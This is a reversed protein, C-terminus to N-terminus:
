PTPLTGNYGANKLAPNGGSMQWINTFDFGLGQYFSQTLDTTLKTGGDLGGANDVPTAIGTVAAAYNTANVGTGNAATGVVRQLYPTASSSGITANVVVCNSAYGNNQFTSAIGANALGTATIGGLTAGIVVCNSTAGKGTGNIGGAAGTNVVGGVNLTSGSVLCNRVNAAVGGIGGMSFCNTINGTFLCEDIRMNDNNNAGFIGGVGNTGGAAVGTIVVSSACNKITVASEGRGLIGGIRSKAATISINGKATCYSIESANTSSKGVIGGVMGSSSTISLNTACQTVKGATLEGVVGGTIDSTNTSVLTGAVTVNQVTGSNTGAVLGFAVATTMNVGTFQINKITGTNTVVFAGKTAFAGSLGSLSFGAGDVTGGFTTIATWPNTVTIDNMFKVSANPYNAMTSNLQDQDKVMYPDGTTGSGSEYMSKSSIAITRATTKVNAGAGTQALSMAVTINGPTFTGGSKDATINGTTTNYTIAAGTPNATTNVYVDKPTVGLPVSASNTGMTINIVTPFSSGVALIRTDKASGAATSLAITNSGTVAVGSADCNTFAVESNAAIGAVVNNATVSGTLTLNKVVAAAGAYGFFSQNDLTPQNIAYKITQGNGDFSGTFPAASTGIPSWNQSSADITAIVKYAKNLGYQVRNLDNLSAIEYPHAISGDGASFASVPIKVTVAPRAGFSAVAIVTDSLFQATPTLTLTGKGTYPDAVVNTTLGQITNSNSVLIAAPTPDVTFSIQKIASLSTIATNDITFHIVGNPDPDQAVAVSVTTNYIKSNYMIKIPLYTVKLEVPTGSVPVKVAGSDKKLTVTTAPIYMGNVTDASITATGGGCNEYLIVAQSTSALKTAQVFSGEAYCGETNIDFTRAFKNDDNKRCALACVLVTFLSFIILKKM